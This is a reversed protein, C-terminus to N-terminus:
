LGVHSFPVAADAHCGSQHNEYVRFATLRGRSVRFVM